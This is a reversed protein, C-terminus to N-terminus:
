EEDYGNIILSNGWIKIILWCAGLFALAALVSAWVPATVCWWSLSVNGTIKLVILVATAVISLLTYVYGIWYSIPKKM